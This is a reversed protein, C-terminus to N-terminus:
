QQAAGIQDPFTSGALVQAILNDPFLAIPAVLQYLQEATPMAYTTAPAQQAQESKPQEKKCGDLGIGSVTISVSLLISLAQKWDPVSSVVRRPSSMQAFKAIRKGLQDVIHMKIDRGELIFDFTSVNLVAAISGAACSFFDSARCDASRTACGGKGALAKVRM